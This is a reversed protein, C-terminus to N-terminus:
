PIAPPPGLPPKPNILNGRVRYVSAVTDSPINDFRIINANGPDNPPLNNFEFWRSYVILLLTGKRGILPVDDKLEMITPLSVKHREPHTLSQGFATAAYFEPPLLPDNRPWFQRLEDDMIPDGPEHHLRVQGPNPTYPLFSNLQIFGTNAEFDSLSVRAPSDLLSEPFSAAPTLGLPLQVSPSIFPFPDDPSAPGSTVTYLNYDIWRPILNLTVTGAPNPVTVTQPARAQYFLQYQDLGIVPPLARFATYFLLIFEGPTLAPGASTVTPYVANVNDLIALFPGTFSGVAFLVTGVHEPIHFEPLVPDVVFITSLVVTEFRVGLERHSPDVSWLSVGPTIPAPTSIIQATPPIDTSPSLQAPDVWAPISPSAIPPAWLQHSAIPTRLMGQQSPYTIQVEVYVYFGSVPAALTIDITTDTMIINAIGPFVTAAVDFLPPFGSTPENTLRIKGVGSFRTGVPALLGVPYITTGLPGPIIPGQVVDLFPLGLNITPVIATPPGVPILQRVVINTSVSRDSFHTRVGDPLGIGVPPATGILDSIFNSTGSTADGPFLIQHETELSNDLLEQFTKQGVEGFDYAVSKRLDKIDAPDIRDSFLGDPRDSPGPLLIAGNQNPPISIKTKFFFPAGSNRRFIACLPIAYMFGDVTGLIGASIVNGLGAVWLGPDTPHKVYNYITLAGDPVFPGYTPTSNAFIVALDDLGDPFTTIDVNNIVRYRYQIQVRLATESLVVPDLIDDALNVLDPAKVNGHRFILGTASKNITDPIPKILARWAEIFVLDVRGTTPVVPPVDLTILNSGTIASDSYEFKLRWGNIIMDASKTAFINPVALAISGPQDKQFIYFNSLDSRDLIDSTFGSPHLKQLLDRNGYDSNIEQLLEVEWDIPNRGQQFVVTEWSHQEATFQGGGPVVAQPDQSVGGGYTKYSM